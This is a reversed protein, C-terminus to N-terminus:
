GRSIGSVGAGGGRGARDEGPTGEASLGALRAQVQALRDTAARHVVGAQEYLDAAEEVGVEGAGMRRTLEELMAVLEEFSLADLDPLGNM